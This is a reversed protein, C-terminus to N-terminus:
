LTSVVKMIFMKQIMNFGFLLLFKVFFNVLAYHPTIGQPPVEQLLLYLIQSRKKAWIKLKRLRHWILTKGFQDIAKLLYIYVQNEPSSGSVYKNHHRNMYAISLNAKTSM